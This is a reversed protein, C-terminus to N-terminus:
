AAERKKRTKRGYFWARAVHDDTWFGEPLPDQRGSFPDDWKFGYRPLKKLLRLSAARTALKQKLDFDVM